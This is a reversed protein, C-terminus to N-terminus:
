ITSFQIPIRVLSDDYSMSDAIGDYVSEPICTICSCMRGHTAVENHDQYLNCLKRMKTNRQIDILAQESKTKRYKQNIRNIGADIIVGKNDQIQQREDPKLYKTECDPCDLVKHIGQVIRRASADTSAQFTISRAKHCSPCEICDIFQYTEM